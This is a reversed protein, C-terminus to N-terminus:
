VKWGLGLGQDGGKVVGEAPGQLRGM